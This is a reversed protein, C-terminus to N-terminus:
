RGIFSLVTATILLSPLPNFPFNQSIEHKIPVIIATTDQESVTIEQVSEKEKEIKNLESM